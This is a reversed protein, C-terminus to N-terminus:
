TLQTLRAVTIVGRPERKQRRKQSCVEAHSDRWSRQLRENMSQRNQRCIAEYESDSCLAM